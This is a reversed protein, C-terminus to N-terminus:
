YHTLEALFRAQNNWCAIACRYSPSAGDNREFPSSRHYTQEDQAKGHKAEFNALSKEIDPALSRREFDDGPLYTAPLVLHTGAQSDFLHTMAFYPGRSKGFFNLVKAIYRTAEDGASRGPWTVPFDEHLTVSLDAVQKAKARAILRAALKPETIAIPRCEGGSGDAHKAPLMAYFAGTEPLKGLNTGCEIWVMGLKGGAQHTAVALDPLPGMSASDLGLTKVGKSGIYEMTDAHPAPWGPSGKRLPVSVFRDGEPFPLYYQDTYGSRFLVVDGFRLDRHSKEWAKVLEPHILFSSGAPANDREKTVDIVIAEGCFQWVPVKEGSILGYPGAGPLGSDPPPVFHAPADWQTGTHEDIILMERYSDSLGISKTTVIAMPTMGVPWVCPLEPSVLLALDHVQDAPVQAATHKPEITTLSAFCIAALTFRLISM